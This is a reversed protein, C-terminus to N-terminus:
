RRGALVVDMPIEGWRNAAPRAGKTRVRRNPAPLDRDRVHLIQSAEVVLDTRDSGLTWDDNLILLDVIRPLGKRLQETPAIDVVLCNTPSAAMVLLSDHGTGSFDVRAASAVGIAELVAAIQTRAEGVAWSSWTPVLVGIGRGATMRAALNGIVGGVVATRADPYPGADITTVRAGSMIRWVVRAVPSGATLPIM